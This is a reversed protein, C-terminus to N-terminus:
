SELQGEQRWATDTVAKAPTAGGVPSPLAGNGSVWRSFLVVKNAAEIRRNVLAACIAIRQRCMLALRNEIRGTGRRGRTLGSLRLIERDLIRQMEALDRNSGIM